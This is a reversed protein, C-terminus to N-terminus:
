VVSATTVTICCLKVRNLTASSTNESLSCHKKDASYICNAVAHSKLLVVEDGSYGYDFPSTLFFSYFSNFIFMSLFHLSGDNPNSIRRVVGLHVHIIALPLTSPSFILFYGWLYYFLMLTLWLSLSLCLAFCFNNKSLSSVLSTSNNFGPFRTRIRFGIFFLHLSVPMM